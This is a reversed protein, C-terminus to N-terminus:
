LVVIIFGILVETVILLAAFILDSDLEVGCFTRSASIM